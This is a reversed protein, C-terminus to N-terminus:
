NRKLLKRVEVLHKGTCHQNAIALGQIINTKYEKVIQDSLTNFFKQKNRAAISHLKEYLQQKTNIDLAAIKKMEQVIAHLRAQSNDIQDYSEDILGDFTEFGYDRLYQLSGVTSALIFPKGCAIPRLTKETLHLRSDDFLTELVVEIGSVVYDKGCYDASATAPHTNAPFYNELQQNSIAFNKNVFCHNTYHTQHDVPNFSTNCHSTLNNRVLQQAFALRYERTGSWARNYILFDKEILRLDFKLIPDHEAYRFWDQAILGHSWFYVPIFNKQAFKQVEPSRQESHVLVTVDYQNIVDTVGRIHQDVFYDLVVDVFEAPHDRSLLFRTRDKILEQTYFGYNLPEQDHFIVIPWHEFQDGTYQTLPTLDDLKRSGHPMWRYILLDHNVCDDLYHYLRDLPVSM